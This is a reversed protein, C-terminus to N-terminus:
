EITFIVTLHALGVSDPQLGIGVYEYDSDIMISNHGPSNIFGQLMHQATGDIDNPDYFTNYIIEGSGRRNPNYAALVKHYPGYLPSTHAYYNNVSMDMSRFNAALNNLKSIKVPAVKLSARYANLKKLFTVEFENNMIEYKVNPVAYYGFEDRSGSPKSLSVDTNTPPKLDDSDNGNGNSDGVISPNNTIVQNTRDLFAVLQVRTVPENPAFTTATKGGTINYGAITQIYDYSWHSKAVDTFNLPSVTAKLNYTEVILKAMQARTLTGEPNFKNSKSFVGMKTLAAIEHYGSMKPSIDSFSPDSINTLDLRIDRALFIASHRRSVKANPKFSGDPYGKVVEKASMTMVHEYGWHSKPVDKFTSTSAASANGTVFLLIIFTSLVTLLKKIKIFLHM